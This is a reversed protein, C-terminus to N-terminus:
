QMSVSRLFIEQKQTKEIAVERAPISKQDVRFSGRQRLSRTRIISQRSEGEQRRHVTDPSDETIYHPYSSERESNKEASYLAAM